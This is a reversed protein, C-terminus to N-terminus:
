ITFSWDTAEAGYHFGTEDEYGLPVSAEISARLASIIRAPSGVKHWAIRRDHCNAPLPMLQGVCRGTLWNGAVMNRINM